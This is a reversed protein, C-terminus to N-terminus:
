VRHQWQCDQQLQHPPQRPRRHHSLHPHLHHQYGPSSWPRFSEAGDEERWSLCEQPLHERLLFTGLYVRVRLTQTNDVKWQSDTKTQTCVYHTATLYSTRASTLIGPLRQVPVGDTTKNM